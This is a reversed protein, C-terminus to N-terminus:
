WFDYQEFTLCHLYSRNFYDTLHPFKFIIKVPNEKYFENQLLKTRKVSSIKLSKIYEPKIKPFYIPPKNIITGDTLLKVFGPPIVCKEPELKIDQRIQGCIEPAFPELILSLLAVINASFILATIVKEERGKVVWPEMQQFYRNGHHAIHCIHAYAERFKYSKMANIYDDLSKDIQTVVSCEDDSLEIKRIEGNFKTHLLSLARNVFNGISAIFEGDNRIQLDDWSFSTDHTEPRNALLYLRYVDSKITTNMADNGFIGIGRSKSFKQNDYNLYEIFLRVMFGTSSIDNLCIYGDNAGILTSPFVVTHFPINDKAMFNVLRVNSGKWWKEWHETYNATM